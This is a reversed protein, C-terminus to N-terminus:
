RTKVDRKNFIIITLLVFSICYLIQKLLTEEFTLGNIVKDSYGVYPAIDYNTFFLYKGWSYNKVFASLASGAFIFGFSCALAISSSSFLVSLLFTLVILTITTFFQSFYRLFVYKWIAISVLEMNDLITQQSWGNFGFLFGGFIFSATFLTAYFCFATISTATLKALVVKSRKYPRTLLFNATGWEFEKSISESGIILMFITVLLSITSTIQIFKWMTIQNPNINYEIIYNNKQIDKQLIKIYSDPVGDKNHELEQIEKLMAQNEALLEEKWQPNEKENVKNYVALTAVLLILTFFFIKTRPRKLIKFLEAKLLNM